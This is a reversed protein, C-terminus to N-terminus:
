NDTPRQGSATLGPLRNERVASFAAYFRKFCALAAQKKPLFLPPSGSCEMRKANGSHTM